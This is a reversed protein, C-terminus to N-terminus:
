SVTDNDEKEGRGKDLKKENKFPAGNVQKVVHLMVLVCVGWTDCSKPLSLGLHLICLGMKKVQKLSM